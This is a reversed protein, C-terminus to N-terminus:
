SSWEIFRDIAIVDASTSANDDNSKTASAEARAPPPLEPPLRPEEVHRAEAGCHFGCLCEYITMLNRTRAYHESDLGLDTVRPETSM